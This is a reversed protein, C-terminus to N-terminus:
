VQFIKIIRIRLIKTDSFRKRSCMNEYRQVKDKDIKNWNIVMCYKYGRTVNSEGLINNLSYYTRLATIFGLYFSYDLYRKTEMLYM